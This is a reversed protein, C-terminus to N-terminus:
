RRKRETPCSTPGGSAATNTRLAVRSLKVYGANCTFLGAAMVQQDAPRVALFSVVAGGSLHAPPGGLGLADIFSKRTYYGGGHSELNLNLALGSSGLLEAAAAEEIVKTLPLATQGEAGALSTVLAAYSARAEALGTGIAVHGQAEVLRNRQWNTPAKLKLLAAVSKKAMEIRGGIRVQSRQADADLTELVSLAAFVPRSGGLRSVQSTWFLRAQPQGAQAIYSRAVAALLSKETATGAIGGVTWDTQLLQLLKSGVSVATLIGGGRKDGSSPEPAFEAAKITANTLRAHVMCARFRFQDWSAFTLLDDGALLLVPALGGDAAVPEAAPPDGPVRPGATAAASSDKLEPFDACPDTKSSKFPGAASIVAAARIDAAITAALGNLAVATLASSEMKGADTGMTTAGTSTTTPIADTIAKLKSAAITNRLQENELTQKLVTQRESDLKLAKQEDSLPADDQALAHSGAQAMIVLAVAAATALKTM